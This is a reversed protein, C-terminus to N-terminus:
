LLSLYFVCLPARYFKQAAIKKLESRAFTQAIQIEVTFSLTRGDSQPRSLPSCLFLSFSHQRSDGRKEEGRKERM